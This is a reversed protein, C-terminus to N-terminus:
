IIKEKMTKLVLRASLNFGTVILLLILACFMLASDYLPISMMEGFNNALLAPLPYAPDFLSKPIIPANGIVMLVAITEGLARSTGLVIAVAIGPFTKRLVVRYITQWQTAGMSLSAERLDDPVSKLVERIIHITFPTIMVALVLAGALLSYGSSWANFCTALDHVFPVITLIGWVGYVVSPIGSLLDILPTIILRAFPSAYESLYIASLVSIPIAILIAMLTVSGTGALFAAIGFRGQMPRWETSYLISVLSQTQLIPISKLLLGIIIATLLAVGCAAM